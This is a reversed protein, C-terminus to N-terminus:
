TVNKRFFDGLDHGAIREALERFSDTTVEIREADLARLIDDLSRQGATVERLLADLRRLVGVARATVAADAHAVRLTAAKAGKEALKELARAHREESLTGSRLLLELAYNEALGELVWDGDGSSRAHSIVHIM